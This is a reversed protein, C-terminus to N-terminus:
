EEGRFQRAVRDYAVMARNVRSPDSLHGLNLAHALDSVLRAAKALRLTAPEIM